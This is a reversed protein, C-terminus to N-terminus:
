RIIVIFPDQDLVRQDSYLLGLEGGGDENQEENIM